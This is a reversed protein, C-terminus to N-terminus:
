ANAARRDIVKGISILWRVEDTITDDFSRTRYGLESQAKESSFNNNRTMNYLSFKLTELQVERDPGEPITRAANSIMVDAPLITEVRPAGSAASILDFMRRIPVMENSMIYGEGKAGKESCAIVGEALDRVDVSNFSGEFGVSMKGDCYQMILHAVPGFAYDNPGCIGSPYVISADLNHEKVARQVIQTALAKTKSYYGVVAEADLIEPELITEGHPLEPIAGTSSVYVLKKAKRSICLDVINQTGTVNVDYVKLSPLPSVSVISACHIVMLGTGEPVTFFRELSSMDTVDGIVIEAGAPIHEAAPDGELVLARVQKGQAILSAAVNNGLLGAAGTLLYITNTKM